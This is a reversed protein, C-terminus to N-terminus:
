QKGGLAKPAPLPLPKLILPYTTFSDAWRTGPRLEEEQPYKGPDLKRLEQITKESWRSFYGHKKAMEHSITFTSLAKDEIPYALSQLEQRYVSLEKQSLRKPMPAQYIAQAFKAYMDGIRFLAASAWEMHGAAVVNTFIGEAEKLMQAKKKLLKVLRKKPPRLKIKKYEDFVMEGLMFRCHAASALETGRPPKRASFAGCREFHSRAKFRRGLKLQAQALHLTAERVQKQRSAQKKLYRAFILEAQRTQGARELAQGARFLASGAQDHRPYRETFVQLIAAEQGFFRQAHYLLAAQFLAAPARQDGKFKEAFNAYHRAAKEYDYQREYIGAIVFTADAARDPYKQMIREYTAVAKQKEGAQELSVAANFLAKPAKPDQPFESVLRQYEGAAESYDKQKYLKAANQFIAATAFGMLKGGLEQGKFTGQRLFSKAKKELSPWDKKRSYCDLALDAAPEAFKNQPYNQVVGLFQQAARTYQGRYYFTKGVEFRLHPLRQNDPAIRGYEDVAQVFGQEAKKLPQEKTPPERSEGPKKRLHDFSLIAAYSAEKKTGADRAKGAAQGYHYAAQEFRELKYLVEGLYFHIKPAQPNEAFLKLYEQYARSSELYAPRTKKQQAQKHRYTAVFRLSVESLRNAEEIIAEDHPANERAWSSGPGYRSALARHERLADELKGERQYADAIRAHHEPNRRALPFQDVLMRFSDIAEDYRAQRFFVEGLQRLVRISYEQGGVQKMFRYAEKAGGSESFTLALDELAEKELETASAEVRSKKGQLQQEKSRRLVRRFRNAAEKANGEKFYCWATKYLALDILASNPHLLVKEYSGKARSYHGKAFHYEGIALHADPVFSSQPFRKLLVRYISLAAPEDGQENLGFGYLYLVTDTRPFQPHKELIEEYVKLSNTLDIRPQEPRGAAKGLRFEELAHDYDRMRSLFETESNEWYLESLRFLADARESADPYEKLFERLLRIAQLRELAVRDERKVMQQELWGPQGPSVPCQEDARPSSAAGALGLVLFLSISKSFKM